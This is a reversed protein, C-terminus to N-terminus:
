SGSNQGDAKEKVEMSTQQDKPSEKKSKNKYDTNYFGKGKFHIAPASYIRDAIRGCKCILNVPPNPKLVLHETVHGESCRFEYIPMLGARAITSRFISARIARRASVHLTSRSRDKRVSFLSMVKVPSSLMTRCLIEGLMASSRM